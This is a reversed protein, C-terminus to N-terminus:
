GSDKWNKMIHQVSRLGIKTSEAIQTQILFIFLSLINIVPRSATGWGIPDMQIQQLLSSLLTGDCSTLTRFHKSSLTSSHCQVIGSCQFTKEVLHMGVIQVYTKQMIVPYTKQFSQKLFSFSMVDFPTLYSTALQIIIEWATIIWCSAWIRQHTIDLHHNKKNKIQGPLTNHFNAWMKEADYEVLVSCFSMFWKGSNVQKLSIWGLASPAIYVM